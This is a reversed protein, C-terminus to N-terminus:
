RRRGLSAGSSERRGTRTTTTSGALVTFRFVPERAPWRLETSRRRSIVRSRGGRRHRAHGADRRGDHRRAAGAPARVPGDAARRDPRRASGVTMYLPIQRAPQPRPAYIGGASYAAAALVDSREIALRATFEAGNSFGSAYVRRTSRGAPASTAWCRTWSASTTRRGRRKARSLRAAQRQPRGQRRPQLQEVEHDPPRHRADPLAPRDPVGRDARDPRGARALRLHAPLARRQGVLRPVHVRGTRARCPRARCTSSTSARTATSRSPRPLQRRRRLAHRRRGPHRPRSRARRRRRTRHTHRVYPPLGGLVVCPQGTVRSETLSSPAAAGRLAAGSGTPRCARAPRGSGSPRSRAEAPEVQQRQHRQRRRHDVVM